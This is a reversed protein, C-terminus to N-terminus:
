SIEVSFAQKFMKVLRPRNFRSPPFRLKEPDVLKARVFQVIAGNDNAAVVM